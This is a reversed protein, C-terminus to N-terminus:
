LLHNNALKSSLVKCGSLLFHPAIIEQLSGILINKKTTFNGSYSERVVEREVRSSRLDKDLQTINEIFGGLMLIRFGDTM